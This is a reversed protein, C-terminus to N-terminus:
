VSSEENLALIGCPLTKAGSKYSIYVASRGVEVSGVVAVNALPVATNVVSLQGPM